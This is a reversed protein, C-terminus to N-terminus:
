ATVLSAPSRATCSSRGEADIARTATIKLPRRPAFFVKAEAAASAKACPL